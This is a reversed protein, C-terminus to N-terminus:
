GGDNDDDNGGGGCGSDEEEDEEDDKDKDKDKDEGGRIGEIAKFCGNEGEDDVRGIDSEAREGDVEEYSAALM